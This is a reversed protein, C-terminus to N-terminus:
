KVRELVILGAKTRKTNFSKPRKGNDKVFCLRLKGDKEFRYIGQVRTGTSNVLDLQAPKPRADVAFMGTETQGTSESVLVKDNLFTFRLEPQNRGVPAKGGFDAKVVRWTGQFPALETPMDNKDDATAIHANLVLVLGCVMGMRTM